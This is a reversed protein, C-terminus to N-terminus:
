PKWLLMLMLMNYGRTVQQEASLFVCLSIYLLRSVCYWNGWSSRLQLISKLSLLSCKFKCFSLLGVLWLAVPVNPTAETFAGLPM